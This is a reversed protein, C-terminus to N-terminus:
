TKWTPRTKKKDRTYRTENKKKLPIVPLQQYIELHTHGGFRDAKQRKTASRDNEISLIHAATDRSIPLLTPSWRSSRVCAHRYFRCGALFPASTIPLIRSQIGVRGMKGVGKMDNMCTDERHFSLLPPGNQKTM